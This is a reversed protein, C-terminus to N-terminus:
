EPLGVIVREAHTVNLYSIRGSHVLREVDTIKYFGLTSLDKREIADLVKFAKELRVRFETSGVLVDVNHKILHLRLAQPDDLRIEDIEESLKTGGQDLENMLREYVTMRRRNAAKVENSAGEELGSIIPPVKDTQNFDLEGLSRGDRDVWVISDTPTRWPAVPEREHVSVRLADPLVRSVEAELVWPHKEVAARIAQLDLQWLSRAKYAELIQLLEARSAQKAGQLEVEKVAFLPSDTIQNYAMVSGVLLILAALAILVFTIGRKTTESVPKARPRKEISGSPIERKRTERREAARQQRREQLQHEYHAQYEREEAERQFDEPLGRRRSASTKVGTIVSTANVGRRHHREALNSYSQKENNPSSAM